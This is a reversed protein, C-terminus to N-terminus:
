LDRTRLANAAVGRLLLTIALGIVLNLVATFVKAETSVDLSLPLVVAILTLLVMIWGFFRTASPTTALLVQVLGTAALACAASVLSYTLTNANGWAGEGKPALVAVGLLGRAVLIGVVALLGAVLATAAGGAWM